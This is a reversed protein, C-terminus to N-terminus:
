FGGRGDLVALTMSVQVPREFRVSPFGSITLRDEGGSKRLSKGSRVRLAIQAEVEVELNSTFSPACPRGVRGSLALRKMVAQAHLRIEHAYRSLAVASCAPEM